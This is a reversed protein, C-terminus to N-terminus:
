PPQNLPQVQHADNNPFHRLSVLADGNAVKQHQRREIPHDGGLAFGLNPDPILLGPQAPQDAVPCGTWKEAPVAGRGGPIHGRQSGVPIVGRDRRKLFLVKALGQQKRIVRVPRRRRNHGRIAALPAQLVSKALHLIGVKHRRPRDEMPGVLFDLHM